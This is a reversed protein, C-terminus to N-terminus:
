SELPVELTVSTGGNPESDVRLRGGVLDARERLGVLGAGTTKERPDFGVGNDEVTLVLTDPTSYLEIAAHEAQSHRLINTVLEQYIRFVTIEIEPSLRLGAEIELSVQMDKPALYNKAYWRIAAALGLDDLLSPRLDFIIRHIEEQAKTLVSRAKDIGDGPVDLGEIFIQVVTLLQSIEDHLERAIRRREEEGANLLRRVLRRSERTREGVKAELEENLTGLEDLTTALKVRAEDLTSALVRIELDGEVAITGSLDGGRLREAQESLESLPKVLSRSLARSLVLGMVVLVVLAVVLTYWATWADGYLLARRREIVMGWPAIRLPVIAAVHRGSAPGPDCVDCTRNDLVLPERSRILQGAEEAALYRRALGRGESDAIVLGTEDIVFAHVQGPPFLDRLTSNLPSDVSRMEAVVFYRSGDAHFPQVIALRAGAETDAGFLPTITERGRLYEAPAPEVSPPDALVVRGDSDVVYIAQRFFSQFRFARLRALLEDDVSQAQTIRQLSQFYSSLASDLYRASTHAVLRQEDLRGRGIQVFLLVAVLGVAVVFLVSWQLLLSTVRRRLRIPRM